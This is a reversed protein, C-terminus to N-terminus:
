PGMVMVQPKAQRFQKVGDPTVQTGQVGVVFLKPCSVFRMLGEDTLGSGGLSIDRLAQPWEVKGLSAMTVSATSDSISLSELRRLQATAKVGDDNVPSRSLAIDTLQNDPLFKGFATGSVQTDGLELSRLQSLIALHEIGRDSIRTQSLTLRKLSSLKAVEVMAADTVHTKSLYLREIKRNAVVRAVGEDGFHTENLGLTILKPFGSLHTAGIDSIPNQDLALTELNTLRVLPALEHDSLGASRIFLRRLRQHRGIAETSTENIWDGYVQIGEVKNLQSIADWCRDVDQSARPVNESRLEVEIVEHFFDPGVWALLSKSIPSPRGPDKGSYRGEFDYFVEGGLARITAVAAAQRRARQLRIAFLGFLIGLVLMALLLTRLSFQRWRRASVAAPPHIAATSGSATM